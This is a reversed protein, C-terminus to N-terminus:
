RFLFLGNQEINPELVNWAKMLLDQVEQNVETGAKRASLGKRTWYGRFSRQLKVAAVHEEPSAERNVWSDVVKDDGAPWIM